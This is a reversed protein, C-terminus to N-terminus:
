AAQGGMLLGIREVDMRGRHGEGVITGRHIVAIRDALALIEELDSSILLVGIGARSVRRLCETVYEMAGVDLGRTPYAAVLVVPRRSLERALVVRQQNGGSLSRLPTYPSPAVIGYEAMLEAAREILRRVCIVGRRCHERLDDLALNEAVSMDLVCGSRHRDEPVLGVGARLMAGPRGLAVESGGVVVRGSAPRLTGAVLDQLAGQGNGEVGALGVIEGAGVELTLRDLLVRGDPGHAVIGKICLASPKAYRREQASTGCTVVGTEGYEMASLPLAAEELLGLAAAEGRLSVERGVMERALERATTQCSRHRAVVRGKRLVTVEDTADLVEDLKHSILVVARADVGIVRRLVSFLARSEDITLVSTPEDMILVQPDKVLCKVIEVRQREGASLDAVRAFPDVRLGYRECVEEVRRVVNAPDLRGREGLCVNEWVTLAEVLSFHQHVMALGFGTADHPDRVTIPEGDRLIEGADPRLLGVLIKMLTSKGAGNEGLLGTISGRPVTLDVRDCAVLTGFRKVIGRLEVAPPAAGETREGSQSTCM